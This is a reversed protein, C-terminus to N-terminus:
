YSSATVESTKTVLGPTTKVLDSVTKKEDQLYFKNDVKIQTSITFSGVEGAYPANTISAITVSLPTGGIYGSPKNAFIYSLTITNESLNCSM